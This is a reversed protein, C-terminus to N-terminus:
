YTYIETFQIYLVDENKEKKERKVEKSLFSFHIM